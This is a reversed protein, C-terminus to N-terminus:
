KKVIIRREKIELQVKNVSAIMDAVASISQSRSVKGTFKMTSLEPPCEVTVDYWRAIKRLISGLEERRFIFYGNVWALNQQMDAASLQMNKGVLAQQGPQLLESQGSGAAVLRISGEVLTTCDYPENAYANVNFTTGLVQILQKDTEVFFPIREKKENSVKAIEFYVEGTMKVRRENKDFEIPYTLSSAANLRAKSGDPLTVRYQGGNPTSISNFVNSATATGAATYVIEGAATKQVNVGAQDVLKGNDADSLSIMSGDSLKLIAKESGPAIPNNQHTLQQPQEAGQPIWLWLLAGLGVFLLIAAAYWRIRQQIPFIRRRLSNPITKDSPILQEEEMREYLRRQWDIIQGHDLELDEASSDWLSNTQEALIQHLHILNNPDDLFDAIIQQEAVTCKGQLYRKLLENTIIQEDM